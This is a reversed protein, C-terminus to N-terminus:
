DLNITMTKSNSNTRILFVILHNNSILNLSKALNKKRQQWRRNVNIQIKNVWVGNSCKYIKDINLEIHNNFFYDRLFRWLSFVYITTLSFWKWQWILNQYNSRIPWCILWHIRTMLLKDTKISAHTSTSVFHIWSYKFKYFFFLKRNIFLFWLWIQM